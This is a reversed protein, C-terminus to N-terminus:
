ITIVTLEYAMHKACKFHEAKHCLTYTGGCQCEVKTNKWQKVKDSKQRETQHDKTRTYYEKSQALIQEKNASKYERIKDANDIIYEARGRGAIAKNLTAMLRIFHGERQRLQEINDCPFEEVLEIFFHEPGIENMKVQLKSKCKASNRTYKHWALRQCIPRCTSGIYLDDDIDNFIKYIRGKSFDLM